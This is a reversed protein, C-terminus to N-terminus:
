TWSLFLLPVPYICKGLQGFIALYQEFSIVIEGEERWYEVLVLRITGKERHAQGGIM